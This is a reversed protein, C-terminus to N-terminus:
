GKNFRRRKNYEHTSNSYSNQILQLWVVIRLEQAEWISAPFLFSSSLLVRVHWSLPRHLYASPPTVIQLRNPHFEPIKLMYTQM